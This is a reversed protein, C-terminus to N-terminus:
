GTLVIRSGYSSYIAGTHRGFSFLGSLVGNNHNGGRIFWPYTSFVFGSTDGYWSSHWRNTNDGDLYQKFPGAEGTADGLIRYQYTDGSSAGNYVDYYRNNYNAITTTSFGSSGLNGSIYASVYEWSGGSMDYIGSINGTTSALYGIDTNYAQNYSSGDGSDGPHTQQNTSPLASYGTKFTSNNNINIEANIGYQSHSLYALAGWETNKMMHSDLEREYNYASVFFNYVTNGRWSYVNPKIIIKSSDSSNVQASATTTAGKYGTEFKGVWFGDVGLSIFAPHTMWEGNNCNGTSGSTMPTACSEGEVDTTDKTDFVIDIEHANKIATGTNWLRYKYKPIWVFYSEIDSEKITEGVKYTKSPSDVLIVANAWRKESYNYWEENDQSVYTVTGDNALTVPKLKAENDIKPPSANSTDSSKPVEKEFSIKYPNKETGEGKTILLNTDLYVTPRVVYTAYANNFTLAGTSYIVFLAKQDNTYSTLTWQTFDNIHLWDNKYCENNYINMNTTLCTSRNNGGVAYGYDSPYMLGVYGNWSTSQGSYVVKGREYEYFSKAIAQKSSNGGLNWLINSIMSKAKDTLGVSSFDCTTTAGISTGYPCTGNNRNWYTESNLTKMIKSISWDNSGYQTSNDFAYNGISFARIIKVRSASNGSADKVNNMIGIIRWLEGNFEVYNNPSAGIYRLNKDVTDDYALNTTDTKALNTVYTIINENILKITSEGSGVNGSLGYLEDIAGQVNNSSGGSKSNDYVVDSAKIITVAYVTTISIVVSFLSIILLKLKHNM